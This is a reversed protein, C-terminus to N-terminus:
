YAADRSLVMFSITSFMIGRRQPHEANEVDHISLVLVKCVALQLVVLEACHRTGIQALGDRGSGLENLHCDSVVVLIHV